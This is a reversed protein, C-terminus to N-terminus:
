NKEIIIEWIIKKNEIDVNFEECLSGTMGGFSCLLEGDCNFFQGIAETCDVCDEILFGIKNTDYTCQSVRIYINMHAVPSYLKFEAVKQHLWELDTLPNDVNCIQEQVSNDEKKCSVMVCVSFSEAMILLITAIVPLFGVSYPIRRRFRQKVNEFKRASVICLSAIICLTAVTGKRFVTKTKTSLIEYVKKM